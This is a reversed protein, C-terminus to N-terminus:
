SFALAGLTSVLVWFIFVSAVLIGATGLKLKRSVAVLGIAILVSVWINFVDFNQLFARLVPHETQSVLFAPGATVVDRTRVFVTPDIDGPERGLAVIVSLLARISYPVFYSYAIVSLVRFFTTQAQLVLLAVRYFAAGILAAIVIGVGVVAPMFREFGESIQQQMEVQKREQESLDRWTKGQSQLQAEIGAKALAEPTLELQRQVFFMVGGAVVALLLLPLWWDRPSRRVDEFVEGPSFYMNLLRAFPSMRRPENLDDAPASQPPLGYPPAAADPMQESM